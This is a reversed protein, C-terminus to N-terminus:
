TVFWHTEEKTNYLCGGAVKRKMSKLKKNWKLNNKSIMCFKHIM